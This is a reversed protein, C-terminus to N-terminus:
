RVWGPLYCCDEDAVFELVGSFTRRHSKPTTLRFFMPFMVQMSTLRVLASNPM